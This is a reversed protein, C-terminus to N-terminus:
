ATAPVPVVDLGAFTDLGDAPAAAFTFVGGAGAARKPDLASGGSLWPLLPVHAASAVEAM